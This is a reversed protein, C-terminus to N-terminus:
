ENTILVKEDSFATTIQGKLTCSKGTTVKSNKLQNWVNEDSLCYNHVEITLGDGFAKKLGDIFNKEIGSINITVGNADHTIEHSVKYEKYYYDYVRIDFDDQEIINDYELPLNISLSEIDARIHASVKIENWDKHEQQHIDVEVEEPISSVDVSHNVVESETLVGDVHWGYQMGVEKVVYWLVHSSLYEEGKALIADIKAVEDTKGDKEYVARDDNLIDSIAPAENIALYTELGEQDYVYRFLGINYGTKKDRQYYDLDRDNYRDYNFATYVKGLNNGGSSRGYYLASSKDSYDPVKGDRRIYFRATETGDDYAHPFQYSARTTAGEYMVHAGQVFVETSPKSTSVETVESPNLPSISKVLGSDETCATLLTVAFVNLLILSKKM